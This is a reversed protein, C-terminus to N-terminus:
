AKVAPAPVVGAWYGDNPVTLAQLGGTGADRFVFTIRVFNSVPLGLGYVGVVPGTGWSFSVAQGAPVTVGAAPLNTSASAGSGPTGVVIQQLVDDSTGSNAVTMSLTDTGTVPNTQVLVAHLVRINGVQVFGGDTSSAQKVTQAQNGSWCGGLLPTLVLAAIALGARRRTTTM